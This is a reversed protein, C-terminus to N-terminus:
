PSVKPCLSNRLLTVSQGGADLTAVDPCGDADLDTVVLHIPELGTPLVLNRDTVPPVQFKEGSLNLFVYVSHNHGNLVVIDALGDGNMDALAFDVPAWDLSGHDLLTYTAYVPAPTGAATTGVTAWYIAVDRELLVVVDPMTENLDMQAAAIAKPSGAETGALPTDILPSNVPSTPNFVGDNGTNLLALFDLNQSRVVLLDTPDKSTRLVAPVLGSPPNAASVIPDRAGPGPQQFFPTTTCENKKTTANTVTTETFSNVGTFTQLRLETTPPTTATPFQAAVVIDPIRAATGPTDWFDAVAAIQPSGGLNCGQFTAQYTTGAVQAKMRVIGVTWQNAAPPLTNNHCGCVYPANAAAAVGSPIILDDYGNLDVDAVILGTMNSLPDHENDASWTQTHGPSFTGLPLGWDSNWPIVTVSQGGNTTELVALDIANPGKAVKAVTFNGAVMTNLTAGTFPVMANAQFQRKAVYPFMSVQDGALDLVVVDPHGDGDVDALVIQLPTDDTLLAPGADLTYSTDGWYVQAMDSGADLVAVDVTGDGDIDAVALAVPKVGTPLAVPAPGTPLPAVITGVTENPGGHRSWQVALLLNQASDALVAVDSTNKAHVLQTGAALTLSTVQTDGGCVPCQLPSDQGASPVGSTPDVPFVTVADTGPETMLVDRVAAKAGTTLDDFKGIAVTAPSALGGYVGDPEIPSWSVSGDTAVVSMSLGLTRGDPSVLAVAIDPYSDLNLLGLDMAQVPVQLPIQAIETFVPLTSGAAQTFIRICSPAAVPKGTAPDTGKCGNASDNTTVLVVDVTGQADQDMNATRVLVVPPAPAKTRPDAAVLDQVKELVGPDTRQWVAAGAKGGIVLGDRSLGALAVPAIVTAPAALAAHEGLNFEPEAIFRPTFTASSSNGALDTASVVVTVTAIKLAVLDATSLVLAGSGAGTDIHGVPQAPSFTWFPDPAVAVADGAATQGSVEIKAAVIGSGKDDLAYGLKLDGIFSTKDAPATTPTITPATTDVTVDQQCTVERSSDDPDDITAVIVWDGDAVKLPVSVSYVGSTGVAAGAVLTSTGTGKSTQIVVGITDKHKRPDTVTVQLPVNSVASASILANEAPTNFVCAIDTSPVDAGPDSGADGGGFHRRTSSGCAASATFAALVPLV